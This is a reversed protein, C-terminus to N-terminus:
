GERLIQEVREITVDLKQALIAPDVVPFGNVDGHGNKAGNQAPAGGFLDQQQLQLTKQEQEIAANELKELSQNLVSLANLIATM